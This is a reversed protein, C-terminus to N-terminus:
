NKREDKTENLAKCITIIKKVNHNYNSREALLYNLLYLNRETRYEKNYFSILWERLTFFFEKVWFYKTVEPVYGNIYNLYFKTVFGSAMMGKKLKNLYEKKLRRSEMFHFFELSSDYWIKYGAIKFALCMESDEGSSLKKGSRSMNFFSFGRGSIDLFASKRVFMGAGYVANKEGKVEGSSPMQAGVAFYAQQEDFWPPLDIDSKVIGRGGLVAIDPDNKMIGAGTKLYNESLLNDQDCFLLIDYKAESIGRLRAYTLGSNSEKVIKWTFRDFGSLANQIISHSNDTSNNDVFILEVNEAGEPNLKKLHTITENLIAGANYICLIVSVGMSNVNEQYVM